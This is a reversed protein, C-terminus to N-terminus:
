TKVKEQAKQEEERESESEVGKERRLEKVAKKRQQRQLEGM